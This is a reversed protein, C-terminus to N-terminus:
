SPVEFRGFGSKTKAGAGIWRFADRVMEAALTCDKRARDLPDGLAPRDQQTAILSLPAPLLCVQLSLQEAALFLIPKPEERESPPRDGGGRYYSGYHPTMVEVVLRVPGTPVADLFVVSGQDAGQDAGQDVGQDVDRDAGRDVGQDADRDAVGIEGAEAAPSQTESPAPAATERGPGERGAEEPAALTERASCPGFIRRLDSPDLAQGAAAERWVEAYARTMGKLASGPLYPVDLTPHWLFGNELPNEIGMGTVFRGQSEATFAAAVPNDTAVAGGQALTLRRLRGAYAELAPRRGVPSRGQQYPALWSRKDLRFRHNHIDFRGGIREFWLGVNAPVVQPKRRQWAADAALNELDIPTAEQCM